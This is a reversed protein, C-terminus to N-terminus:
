KCANVTTDTLCTRVRDIFATFPSTPGGLASLAIVLAISVVAIILAYEVVQAGEEDRAFNVTGNKIATVLKNMTTVGLNILKLIARSEKKAKSRGHTPRGSVAFQVVTVDSNGALLGAELISGNGAPKINITTSWELPCMGALEKKTWYLGEPRALVFTMTTGHLWIGHCKGGESICVNLWGSPNAAFTILCNGM